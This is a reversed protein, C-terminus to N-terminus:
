KSLTDKTWTLKEGLEREQMQQILFVLEAQLRGLNTGALFMQGDVLQNHIATLENSIGSFMRSGFINNDLDTRVRFIFNDEFNDDNLTFNM